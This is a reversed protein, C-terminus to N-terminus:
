WPNGPLTYETGDIDQPKKRQVFYSYESTSNGLLGLGAKQINHVMNIVYMSFSKLHLNTQKTLSPIM